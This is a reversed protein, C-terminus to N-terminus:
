QSSTSSSDPTTTDGPPAYPGFPSPKKRMESVTASSRSLWARSRSRPLRPPQHAVAAHHGHHARKLQHHQLLHARGLRRDPEAGHEELGPRGLLHGGLHGGQGLHHHRDPRRGRVHGLAQGVPHEMLEAHGRARGVRGGPLEHLQQVQRQEPGLAALPLPRDALAVVPSNGSNSVLASPTKQASWPRSSGAM